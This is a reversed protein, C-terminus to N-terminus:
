TYNLLAELRDLEQLVKRWSTKWKIDLPESRQCLTNAMGVLRNCIDGIERCEESADQQLTFPGPLDPERIGYQQAIMRTCALVLRKLRIRGLYAADTGDFSNKLNDILSSCTQKSVV